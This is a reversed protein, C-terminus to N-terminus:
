DMIGFVDISGQSGDATAYVTNTQMTTIDCKGNLVQKGNIGCPFKGNNMCQLFTTELLSIVLDSMCFM